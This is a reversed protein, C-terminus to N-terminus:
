RAEGKDANAKALIADLEADNAVPEQPLDDIFRRGGAFELV